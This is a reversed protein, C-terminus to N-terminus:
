TGKSRTLHWAILAQRLRSHISSTNCSRHYSINSAEMASLASVRLCARSTPVQPRTAGNLCRIPRCTRLIAARPKLTSYYDAIELNMPKSRGQMGPHSTRSARAEAFRPYAKNPSTSPTHDQLISKCAQVLSVPVSQM